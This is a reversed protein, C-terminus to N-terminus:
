GKFFQSKKWFSQRWAPNNVKYHLCFQFSNNPFAFNEKKSHICDLNMLLEKVEADM